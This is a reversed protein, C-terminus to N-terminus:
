RGAGPQHDDAGAARRVHPVSEHVARRAHRGLPLRAPQPRDHVLELQDPHAQRRRRLGRRRRQLARPRRAGARHRLARAGGRLRRLDLALRVPREDAPADAGGRAQRGRARRSGARDVRAARRVAGRRQERDRPLPAPRAPVLVVGPGRPPPLQRDAGRVDRRAPVRPQGRGAVGAAALRRHRGQVPRVRRRDRQGHPRRQGPHVRAAELERQDGADARGHQRQPAPRRRQRLHLRRAQRQRQAAPRLRGPHAQGDPVQGLDRYFRPTSFEDKPVEWGAPKTIYVLDTTRRAVDVDLAYEGDRDTETSVLGDTVTVGRVGPEGADRAGNGNRDDFVVGTVQAQQPDVAEALVPQLAKGFVAAALAATVALLAWRLRGARLRGGLISDATGM